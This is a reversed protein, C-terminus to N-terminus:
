GGIPSTAGATPVSCDFAPLHLAARSGRGGRALVTVAVHCHPLALAAFRLTFGGRPGARRSASARAPLVVTVRVREGPRFGTGSVTLPQSAAIRLAPAALAGAGAQPAAVLALAVTGAALVSRLRM